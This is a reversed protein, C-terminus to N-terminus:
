NGRFKEIAAAEDGGSSELAKLFRNAEPRSRFKYGKVPSYYFPDSKSTTQNDRPVRRFLWGDPLGEAPKPAIKGDKEGLTPHPQNRKGRSAVKSSKSQGSHGGSINVEYDLTAIKANGESTGSPDEIHHAFVVPFSDLEEQTFDSEPLGELPESFAAAVPSKARHSSPSARAEGGIWSGLALNIADKLESRVYFAQGDETTAQRTQNFAKEALASIEEMMKEESVIDNHKWGCSSHVYMSSQLTTAPFLLLPMKETAGKGCEQCVPGKPEERTRKDSSAHVKSEDHARKGGSLREKKKKAAKKAVGTPPEIERGKIADLLEQWRSMDVRDKVYLNSHNAIFLKKTEENFIKLDEGKLPPLKIDAFDFPGVLRTKTDMLDLVDAWTTYKDFDPHYESMLREEGETSCSSASDPSSPGHHRRQSLDMLRRHIAKKSNPQFERAKGM